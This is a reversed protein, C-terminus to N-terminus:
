LYPRLPEIDYGAAAAKSILEDGNAGRRGEALAWLFTSRTGSKCFALLKGSCADIAEAMAEVKEPSFGGAVPIHRYDLGAARAGAEVEASLPQGPEEHDPRNNVIMTVGYAALQPIADIAIQGAVLVKDDLPTM